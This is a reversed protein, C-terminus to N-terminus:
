LGGLRDIIPDKYDQFKEQADDVLWQSEKIGKVINEIEDYKFINLSIVIFDRLSIIDRSVLYSILQIPSFPRLKSGWADGFDGVARVLTTDNTVLYDCDADLATIFAHHDKRGAVKINRERLQKRFEIFREPKSRPVKNLSAPPDWGSVEDINVECMICEEGDETLLEIVKNQLNDFKHEIKKYAIISQADFAFKM